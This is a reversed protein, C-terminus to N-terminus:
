RCRHCKSPRGHHGLYYHHLYPSREVHNVAANLARGLLFTLLVKAIFGWM